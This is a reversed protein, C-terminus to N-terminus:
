EAACMCVSSLVSSPTVKTDLLPALVGRAYCSLLPEEAFVPHTDCLELLTQQTVGPSPPTKSEAASSPMQLLLPLTQALRLYRHM